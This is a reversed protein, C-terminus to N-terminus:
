HLDGVVQLLDKSIVMLPWIGRSSRPRAARVCTRRAGRPGIHLDRQLATPPPIPPRLPRHHAPCPSSVGSGNTGYSLGAARHPLRRAAANCLTPLTAADRVGVQRASLARTDHAAPVRALPPRCADGLARLADEIMRMYPWIRRSRQRSAARGGGRRAAPAERARRPAQQLPRAHRASPRPPWLHSPSPSARASGDGSYGRGAQPHLLRCAAPTPRAAVSGCTPHPLQQMVYPATPFASKGYISYGM